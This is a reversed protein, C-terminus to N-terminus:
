NKKVEPLDYQMRLYLTFQVVPEIGAPNIVADFDGGHLPEYFFTTVKRPRIITKNYSSYAAGAEFAQYAQYQEAPYFVDYKENALAAPTLKLGLATYASEKQKVVKVAEEFLRAHIPKADSVVYNVEILDFIGSNGAAALMKELLDRDKYRVAINKKTEFGTLRETITNGTETYDFVRNQSIFDIFVDDRKIGLKELASIFEAFKTNVAQNSVAPVKGEQVFGFVAVYGDAPVNMLVSTEIFQQNKNEVVATLIGTNTQPKRPQQGRNRYVSSGAEQAVGASVAIILNIILLWITKM